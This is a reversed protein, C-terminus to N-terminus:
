LSEGGNDSHIARVVTNFQTKIMQLFQTFLPLVDSKKKLLYAWTCRSHDDIFTVYYHHRSFVMVSSPGWVDSHILYFISSTRHMRPIHSTRTHKSLECVVCQFKHDKCAKILFPFLLCLYQFNIHVLCAHWLTLTKLSFVNSNSHPLVSAQLSSTTPPPEGFYYLGDREYGKGFIKKSNLDKLLCHYPLFIVAYNLSKALHSVSLLNFAFNPVHLVFSLLIDSSFFVDGKHSIHSTSGDALCVSQTVPILPSSFLSLEGTM